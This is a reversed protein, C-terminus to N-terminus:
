RGANLMAVHQVTADTDKLFSAPEGVEKLFSKSLKQQQRQKLFGKLYLYWSRIEQDM